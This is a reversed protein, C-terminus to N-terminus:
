PRPRLVMEVVADHTVDVDVVASASADEKEASVIARGATVGLTEFYGYQDSQVLLEGGAADLVRVTTFAAGRGDEQLVRGRLEGPPVDLTVHSAGPTVTLSVSRSARGDRRYTAEYEGPELDEFVFRGAADVTASHMSPLDGIWGEGVVLGESTRRELFVPVGAIPPRKSRLEVLGGDRRARGASLVIGSLTAPVLQIEVSTEPLAGIQVTREHVVSGREVLRLLASGPAATAIRATGDQMAASASAWPYAAGAYLLRAESGCRAVPACHVVLGRARDLKVEIGDEATMMRPAYGAAGFSLLHAGSALGRLTFSGDERSATVVWDEMVAAVEAGRAHPRLARVRAGSLPGGDEDLVRGTIISGADLRLTGLDWAENPTVTRQALTLPAFSPARIELALTGEDLGGIDIVGNEDFAVVRQAGNNIVLVDGAGADAVRGIVRVGRSLEVVLPSKADAAFSEDAARFGRASVHLTLDEDTPVGALQAIGDHSTTASPGDLIRVTAGAIPRRQDDVVRVAAHHASRLTINGLDSEDEIRRVITVLDPKSLKLQLPGEPIGRLTFTGTSTSQVTRRLGRTLKGVAFIAEVVVGEIPRRRADVVRGSVITGRPLEVTRPLQAIEMVVPAASESWAALTLPVSPVAPLLVRGGRAVARVRLDSTVLQLEVFTRSGPTVQLTQPSAAVTALQLPEAGATTTTWWSASRPGDVRVHVAASAPVHLIADGDAGAIAFPLLADPLHALMADTAWIVRAKAAGAHVRLSATQTCVVNAEDATLLQPACENSWWWVREGREVREVVQREPWADETIRITEAGPPFALAVALSFAAIM